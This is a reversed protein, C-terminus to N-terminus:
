MKYSTSRHALNIVLINIKMDPCQSLFFYKLRVHVEFFLMKEWTALDM